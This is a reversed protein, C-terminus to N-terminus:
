PRESLTDLETVNLARDYLQLEDIAGAFFDTTSGNDNDAGLLLPDAADYLLEGGRANTAAQIGDLFIRKQTGDYTAAVHVWTGATIMPNTDLIDSAVGAGADHLSEFRVVGTHEICVRWSNQTSILYPQSALCQYGADDSADIRVFAAVTLAARPAISDIQGVQLLDGDAPRFRAASGYVGPVLDPCRNCGAAHDFESEDIVTMGALSEMRYWAILGAPPPPPTRENADTLDADATVADIRAPAGDVPSEPAHPFV